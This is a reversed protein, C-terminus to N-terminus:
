TVKRYVPIGAIGLPVVRKGDIMTERDYQPDGFMGQM